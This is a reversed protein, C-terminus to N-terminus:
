HGASGAFGTSLEGAAHSSVVSEEGAEDAGAGAWSEAPVGTMGLTGSEDRAGPLEADALRARV